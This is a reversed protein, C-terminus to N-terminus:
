LEWVLTRIIFDIHLSLSMRQRNTFRAASSDNIARM